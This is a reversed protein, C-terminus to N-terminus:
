VIVAGDINTFVNNKLDNTNTATVVTKNKVNVVLALNDMLILSDKIGKEEAKVVGDNIRELQNPTVKINREQLRQEAHKSFKVQTQTQLKDKLINEFSSDSRKINPNQTTQPIAVPKNTGIVNRNNIIMSMVLRRAVSVM